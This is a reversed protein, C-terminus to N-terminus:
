HCLLGLFYAISAFFLLYCIGPIFHAIFSDPNASDGCKEKVAVWDNDNYFASHTKDTAILAHLIRNFGFVSLSAAAACMVALASSKDPVIFTYLLWFWMVPAVNVIIFSVLFRRVAYVRKKSDFFENTSFPKYRGVGSIIAGWFVGWLMILADKGTFM